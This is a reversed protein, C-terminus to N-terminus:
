LAITAQLFVAREPQLVPSAPDTDEYRFAEDFLNRVELSLIGYRGPLRYGISANVVWFSDSGPVFADPPSGQLNFSGEQHYWTGNLRSFFGCPHFFAAGLPVRHTKVQELFVAFERDRDIEEYQYEASLAIRDDPTWYLYGRGQRERWDTMGTTTVPAAPPPLVLTSTFPVELNRWVYEMGGYAKPSFKRDVAVGYNWARTGEADDFFQNFGAVQTPELTQDNILLRKLVRFAAARITTDPLPNWTVGVKPNFQDRDVIGGAFFDGSAGITWTVSEPYRISSYLYLNTHRIDEDTRTPTVFPDPPPIPPPPPPPSFVTTGNGDLDTAFHGGGGVLSGRGSRALFQLEGGFSKEVTGTDVVLVPPFEFHDDLENRQYTFNGIVDSGPGFAHRFGVRGSRRERSLRLGRQFDDPFFHLSRDGWEDDSARFEAQVSTKHSLSAQM